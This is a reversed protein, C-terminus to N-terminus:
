FEHVFSYPPDLMVYTQSGPTFGRLAAMFVKVHTRANTLTQPILATVFDRMLCAHFTEHNESPARTIKNPTVLLTSLSNQKINTEFQHQM